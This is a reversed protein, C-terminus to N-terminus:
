FYTRFYVKFVAKYSFFYNWKNVYEARAAIQNGACIYILEVVYVCVCWFLPQYCHKCITYLLSYICVCLGQKIGMGKIGKHKLVGLWNIGSRLKHERM